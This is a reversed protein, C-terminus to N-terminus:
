KDMGPTTPVPISLPSRAILEQAEAETAVSPMSGPLPRRASERLFYIAVAGIISTGMLYYAPAMDSGTANILGQIIFPTTGGFIAVSFNYAIGMSSYRSSTPPRSKSVQDPAVDGKTPM